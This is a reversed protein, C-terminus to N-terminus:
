VGVKAIFYPAGPWGRAVPLFHRPTSLQGKSIKKSPQRAPGRIRSAVAAPEADPALPSADQPTLWAPHFHDNDTHLPLGIQWNRIM